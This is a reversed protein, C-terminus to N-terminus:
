EVKQFTQNNVIYIHTERITDGYKNIHIKGQLGNFTHNILAKKIDKKDIIKDTIKAIEYGKVNFSSPEYGFRDIFEERFKIYKKNDSLPNFTSFFLVGDSAEKAQKLFENTFASGSVFILDNFNRKKLKKVINASLTSSGIILIPESMNIDFKLNENIPIIKDIHIYKDRKDLFSNIISKAYAENNKDYIINLKKNDIFNAMHKMVSKLTQYNKAPQIRIFNDDKNSLENTSATPSFLLTNTKNFLPVADKTLSSTIHGIILKKHENILKKDIKKNLIKDNDNNIFDFEVGGEEQAILMGNKLEKAISSYSGDFGLVVPVKQKNECGLFLLFLILLVIRM